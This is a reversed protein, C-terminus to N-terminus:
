ESTASQYNSLVIADLQQIARQYRLNSPTPVWGPLLYQNSLQANFDMVADLAVQVGEAESTIDVDFLAKSVIESTLSMMDQHVDRIFGDQWRDLLRNTYAVMMEM